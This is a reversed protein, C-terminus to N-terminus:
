RTDVSLTNNSQLEALVRDCDDPSVVVGVADYNKAAARILTMGGIDIMEVSPAQDFPYLNCVVLDIPVIGHEHLTALHDPNSRDALIGAYIHPHLTKVRGGLMEPFGTIDQVEMCPVNAERIIQATGGSAILSWKLGVLGRALEVIRRKDFVSLLASRQEIAM